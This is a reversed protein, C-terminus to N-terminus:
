VIHVMLLSACIKRPPYSNSVSQSVHGIRTDPSVQAEFVDIEPAARGVYSGDSLIPGPHAEGPCTCSSLKQGILYSLENGFNPDGSTLAAPPGGRFTQNPLTGVDCAEYTYPWMGDLSAGYGARGLNGMAWIAPWLGYVDSRGPLVTSAVILGGTFCFKNWTSIMGGM